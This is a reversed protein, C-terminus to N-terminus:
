QRRATPQEIGDNQQKRLLASLAQRSFSSSLVEHRRM